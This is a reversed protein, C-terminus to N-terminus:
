PKARIKLSFDFAEVSHTLSGVSIFDAGLPGLRQLDTLTVRGSVEVPVRGRILTLAEELLETEMNDLMIIDIKMELAQRVETLNRCETEIRYQRGWRRRVREVAAALSGVADSHNDKVMVMDYLGLRHNGGGGIRVAYKSLMRYGPLTKRTDLIASRGHKGAEEVFRRTKTAIASLFGLFNLATREGRLISRAKGEIVALETGPRITEGDAVAFAVTTDPDVRKFVASFVGAGALIGTDKGMLVGRVREESFIADSTVDGTGRCDEELAMAILQETEKEV